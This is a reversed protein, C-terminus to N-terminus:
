YCGYGMVIINGGQETELDSYDNEPFQPKSYDNDDGGAKIAAQDEKSPVWDSPINIQPDFNIARPKGQGNFGDYIAIEMEPDFENLLKKLEKVRM